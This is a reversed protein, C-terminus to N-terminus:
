DAHSQNSSTATSARRPGSPPVRFNTAKLKDFASKLDALINANAADFLVAATRVTTIKQAIAAARGDLEDILLLDAKLERALNIAATEGEGLGEIPETKSPSCTVLWAPPVTFFAKVEPARKPSALEMAVQPPIVVSGYLRPLVDVHGIKLLGILPSADAVVLM